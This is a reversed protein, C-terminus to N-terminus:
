SLAAPSPTETCRCMFPVASAQWGAAAAMGEQSVGAMSCCSFPRLPTSDACIWSSFRWHKGRRKQHLPGGEQCWAFDLLCMKPANRYTPGSLLSNPCFCHWPRSPIRQWMHLTCKALLSQSMRSAWCVACRSALARSQAKIKMICLIALSSSMNFGFAANNLVLVQILAFVFFLLVNYLACRWTACPVYLESLSGKLGIQIARYRLMETPAKGDGSMLDREPDWQVRGKSGGGGTRCQCHGLLEALAGHSLKVKLIRTQNHKFSYGSRYLVWAFSPKVWTMRVPNFHPGGFGQHQLAWNAIQENFAQYVFVGEEDWEGRFTQVDPDSTQGRPELPVPRAARSASSSVAVDRPSPEPTAVEADEEQADEVEPPSVGFKGLKPLPEFEGFVFIILLIMSTNKKWKHLDRKSSANLFQIILNHHGTIKPERVGWIMLMEQTYPGRLSPQYGTTTADPIRVGGTWKCEFIVWVRKTYLNARSSPGANGSAVELILEDKIPSGAPSIQPGAKDWERPELVAEMARSSAPPKIWAQGLQQACTRNFDCKPVHMWWEPSTRGTKDFM